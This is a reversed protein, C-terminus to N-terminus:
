SRLPRGGELLNAGGVTSAESAVAEANRLPGRAASAGPRRGEWGGRETWVHLTLCSLASLTRSTKLLQVAQGGVHAACTEAGGHSRNGTGM